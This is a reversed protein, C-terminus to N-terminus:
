KPMNALADYTPSGVIGFNALESNAATINYDLNWLFMTGVWGWERGLEYARVSYQAQRELSNQQAFTFRADGTFRWVPWGFETPWITKSGDGNEVMVRRYEEMTNRFFFSRHDDYGRSPDFDGGQYLADPPNAFGSPHAGVADFFGKAGNAYMQRLYEVDDMAAPMPAGTPTLAGSVVIMDPNVAKIANYSAKLLETYAAPNIRGAGGAEYYLNQENWIEVAQVKGAYRAAVQGVFNAYNMPDQPPGEVSRDDDPPRSWDPAKPISLLIKIGNNSYQNIVEDWLGWSYNGPSPEVDKWAMQFKVWDFGMGKMLGINAATNGRPDVQIGYGFPLDGVASAVPAPGSSDPQGPAGEAPAPAEEVPAPTPSPRPTATPEPTPTPSPTPTPTPTTTAISVAVRGRPVAASSDRNSAIAAAIEYTSGTEPVIWKYNPASLDTIGEAVVGGDQSQVQWIVAFQSEVPPIVLDLFKGIVDWIQADNDESLLNEIAVGRLNYQAVFQLKRAISAANELYVTHQADNDDLYAFWYNGSARDFQIGTSEQLGTLTFDLEQGPLVVEAEGIVAVSGIPELATQYSISRMSGDVEDTSLTSLALMIKYRNVQGVAWDLLAEMQGGLAYARPNSITPVKVVNALQGIARWDYAGSNWEEDSIQEPLDVRVSLIKNAPLEGALETLFATYEQRLEPSIRRYDIDIGQYANRQVLDVIASAHRQRATEDVLLNDILDSRVTGGQEWNRITPIVLLASDQIEAPLDQLDGEINGRDGLQLGQPNIEVLSQRFNDPIPTRPAYNTSVSPNVTHTEMVVISEPMFDLQSEIIGESPIKINPLWQWSDDNWAYLDLLDPSESDRPLPVILLVEAPATAGWQLQIRYYPSKMILNPPISEAATLLRNGASGELFASRPIVDLKARFSETVGQPLFSVEIGSSDALSGGNLGIKTYGISLLRDALSVPPLLLVLAILVPILLFNVAFSGAPGELISEIFYTLPSKQVM